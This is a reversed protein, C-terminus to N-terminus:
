ESGHVYKCYRAGFGANTGAIETASPRMIICAAWVTDMVAPIAFVKLNLAVSSFYKSETM